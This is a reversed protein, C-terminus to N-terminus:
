HQSLFILTNESAPSKANAANVRQGGHHVRDATGVGLVTDVGAEHASNAGGSVNGLALLHGRRVRQSQGVGGVSPSM